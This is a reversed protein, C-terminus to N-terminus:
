WWKKFTLEELVTKFHEANTLSHNSWGVDMGDNRTLWEFQKYLTQREEDARAVYQDLIGVLTKDRFYEYMNDALYQKILGNYNSSFDALNRLFNRFEEKNIIEKSCLEEYLEEIGNMDNEKYFDAIQQETVFNGHNMYVFEIREYCKPNTEFGILADFEQKMM